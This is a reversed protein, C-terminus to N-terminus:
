RSPKSVRSCKGISNRIVVLKGVPLLLQNDCYYRSCHGFEGNQYKEVQWCLMEEIAFVFASGSWRHTQGNSINRQKDTRIKCSSPRILAWSSARGYRRSQSWWSRWRPSLSVVSFRWETSMSRYNPWQCDINVTLRSWILCWTLPMGIIHCRSV